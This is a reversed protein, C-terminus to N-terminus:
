GAANGIRRRLARWRLAIGPVESASMHRLDANAPGALYRGTEGLVRLRRDAIRVAWRIHACAQGLTADARIRDFMQDVAALDRRSCEAAMTRAGRAWEWGVGAWGAAERAAREVACLAIRVTRLGGRRAAIARVVEWDIDQSAGVIAAVDAMWRLSTGGAKMGDTVHLLLLEEPRPWAVEVGLFDRVEARTWADEVAIAAPFWRQGLRWHLEVLGGDADRTLALEDTALRLWHSALAALPLAPKYGIAALATAARAVDGVCVLLDLDACERHRPGDAFFSAFSPGKFPMARVGASALSQLVRRLEAAQMLGHGAHADAITKMRARLGTPAVGDDAAAELFASLRPRLQHATCAAELRAWDVQALAECRLAAAPALASALLLRHELDLDARARTANM